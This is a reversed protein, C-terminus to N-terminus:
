LNLVQIILHIIHNLQCILNTIQIESNLKFTVLKFLVFTLNKFDTEYSIKQLYSLSIISTKFTTKSENYGM